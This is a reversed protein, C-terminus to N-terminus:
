PTALFDEIVQDFNVEPHIGMSEARPSAFGKPMADLLGQLQADPRWTILDKAGPAARRAMAAVMDEVTTGLAPLNITRVDGLAPRPLEYLTIL